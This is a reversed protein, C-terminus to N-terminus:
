INTAALLQQRLRDEVNMEQLELNQHHSEVQQSEDRGSEEVQLIEPSNSGSKHDEMPEPTQQYPSGNGNEQNSNQMGAALALVGHFRASEENGALRAREEAEKRAAQTPARTKLEGTVCQLYYPVEINSKLFFLKLNRAKDKLQVQNRDRLITSVSGKDGYLALIQSWHPGKVSDLGAMLANEEETSWPRRQSPLGPRAKQGPNNKAAAAQRAKEYLASTSESQSHHPTTTSTSTTNYQTSYTNPSQNPPQYTTQYQSQRYGNQPNTSQQFIGADEPVDQTTHETDANTGVYAFANGNSPGGNSGQSYGTSTPITLGYKSMYPEVLPRYADMHIHTSRLFSDWNFLDSLEKIKAPDNGQNILYVRRIDLDVLLQLEDDTLPYPHRQSLLNRFEPSFIEDILDEVPKDSEEMSLAAVIIQTKLNMLLQGSAKSIAEGERTWTNVFHENLEYFGVEQGGFVSSVFTAHNALRIIERQAPDIINLEDASLFTSTGYIRKTKDFLDNLTQFSLGRATDRQTVMVVIEDYGGESLINLMQVALCELSMLSIVQLSLQHDTRLREYAARSNPQRIQAHPTKPPSLTSINAEHSQDQHSTHDNMEMTGADHYEASVHAVGSAIIADIDLDGLGDDVDDAPPIAVIENASDPISLQPQVSEFEIRQRKEPSELETSSVRRKLASLQPSSPLNQSTELKIPVDDNTSAMTLSNISSDAM